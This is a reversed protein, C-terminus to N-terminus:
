AGEAHAKIQDVREQLAYVIGSVTGELVRVLGSIPSEMSWVAEARLQELGPLSAIRMVRIADLPKGDVVGGRIDMTPHANSFDRLTRAAAVIDDGSFTMAAQGHFHPELHKAKGERVALVALSNKVVRFTAGAERMQRRLVQMDSVKLGTYGAVISLPAEGIADVLAGVIQAKEAKTAM